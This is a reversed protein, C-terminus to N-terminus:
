QLRETSERPLPLGLLERFKEVTAMMNEGRRSGDGVSSSRRPSDRRFLGILETRGCNTFPVKQGSSLPMGTRWYPASAPTKGEGTCIVEVCGLRDM